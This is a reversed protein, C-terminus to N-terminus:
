LSTTVHVLMWLKKIKRAKKLQILLCLRKIKNTLRRFDYYNMKLRHTLEIYKKTHFDFTFENKLYYFM